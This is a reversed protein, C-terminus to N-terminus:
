HRGTGDGFGGGADFRPDNGSELANINIQESAHAAVTLKVDNRNYRGQDDKAEIVVQCDDKNHNTLRLFSVATANGAPNVNQFHFTTGNQELSQLKFPYSPPNQRMDPLQYKVEVNGKLTTQPLLQTTSDSGFCVYISPTKAPTANTLNEFLKHTAALTKTSAENTKPDITLAEWEGTPKACVTSKTIWIGSKLWPSLNDGQVRVTINTQPSTILNYVTPSSAHNIYSETSSGVPLAKTIDITFGGANYYLSDAGNSDGVAGTTSYKSKKVNKSATDIKKVTNPPNVDEVTVGWKSHAIIAHASMIAKKQTVNYVDVSASISGDTGGLQSTLHTLALQPFTLFVDSATGASAAADAKFIFTFEKNSNAYGADVLRGSADGIDGGGGAQAGSTFKAAVTSAVPTSPFEAGGVLAIRVRIQDDKAISKANTLETGDEAKLKLSSPIDIANGDTAIVDRAFTIQTGNDYDFKAASSLGPLAIAGIVAAALLSKNLTKMASTVGIPPFHTYTFTDVESILMCLGSCCVLNQMQLACVFIGHDLRLPM